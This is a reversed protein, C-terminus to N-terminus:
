KPRSRRPRSHCVRGARNIRREPTCGGAKSFDRRGYRYLVGGSAAQRRPGRFVPTGCRGARCPPKTDQRGSIAAEHRRSREQDLASYREKYEEGKVHRSLYPLKTEMEYVAAVYGPFALVTSQIFDVAEEDEGWANILNIYKEKYM